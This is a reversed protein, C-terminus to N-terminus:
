NREASAGLQERSLSSTDAPSFTLAKKLRAMTRMDTQSQANNYAHVLFHLSLGIGARFPPELELSIGEQIILANVEPGIEPLDDLCEQGIDILWESLSAPPLGSTPRVGELWGRTLWYARFAMTEVERKLGPLPAHYLPSGIMIGTSVGANYMYAGAGGDLNAELFDDDLPALLMAHRRLSMGLRATGPYHQAQRRAERAYARSDKRLHLMEEARRCLNPRPSFPVVAEYHAGDIRRM